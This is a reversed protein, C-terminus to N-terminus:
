CRHTSYAVCGEYSKEQHKPRVGCASCLTDRLVLYPQSLSLIPSNPLTPLLHPAGPPPTAQKQTAPHTPTGKSHCTDIVHVQGSSSNGATNDSELYAQCRSADAAMAPSPESCPVRDLSPDRFRPPRPTGSMTHAGPVRSEGQTSVVGRDSAHAHTHKCHSGGRLSNLVPWRRGRPTPGTPTRALAVFAGVSPGLPLSAGACALAGGGTATAALGGHSGQLGQHVLCGM